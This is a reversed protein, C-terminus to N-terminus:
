LCLYVRSYLSCINYVRILLQNSLCVSLSLCLCLSLRLSLSLSLRLSLCVSLCVSRCVSLCLSLSLSTYTHCPRCMVASCFSLHCSLCCCTWGVKRPQPGVPDTVQDTVAPASRQSGGDDVIGLSVSGLESWLM